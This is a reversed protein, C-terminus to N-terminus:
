RRRRCGGLHSVLHGEPEVPTAPCSVDDLGADVPAVTGIGGYAPLGLGLAGQASARTWQGRDAAIGADFASQDYAVAGFDDCATM